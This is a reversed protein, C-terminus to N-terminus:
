RPSSRAWAAPRPTVIPFSATPTTAFSARPAGVRARALQARRTTTTWSSGPSPTPPPAPSPIARAAAGPADENADAGKPAEGGAVKGVPASDAGVDRLVHPRPRGGATAEEHADDEDDNWGGGVDDWGGPRDEGRSRSYYERRAGEGAGGAMGLYAEVSAPQLLRRICADEDVYHHLPCASVHRPRRRRRLAPRRRRREVRAGARFHSAETAAASASSPAAGGYFRRRASTVSSFRTFRPM